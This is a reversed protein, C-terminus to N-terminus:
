RPHTHTLCALSRPPQSPSRSFPTASFAISQSTAALLAHKPTLTPQLRAFEEWAFPVLARSVQPSLMLSAALVLGTMCESSRLASAAAHAAVAGSSCATDYSACPGQTGLIFSLRGAAISITGGTAAYVSEEHVRLAQFDANMIGLFIGVDAARLDERREDVAHLAAYGYELLLRQQPDTAGSEAASMGFFASAFAEAHAVFAGYRGSSPSDPSVMWRRLPVQGVADGASPLLAFRASSGGPWRASFGAIQQQQQQQQLPATSVISSVTPAGHLRAHIYAALECVNPQEFIITENLELGLRRNLNLALKQADLSDIGLDMFGTRRREADDWEGAGTSSLPGIADIVIAECEAISTPPLATGHPGAEGCSAAGSAAGGAAGGARRAVHPQRWEAAAAAGVGHSTATQLRPSSRLDYSVIVGYGLNQVDGRRYGAVVDCVLAGAMTHFLLGPDSGEDVHARYAAEAEASGPVVDARSQDYNRCRTVGCALQVTPDLEGLHLMTRRILDGVRKAEPRQLVALLQVVPGTPTHLELERERTTSLLCDYSPVRQSYMVGLLRGDPAVGVLQGTPHHEIRSRLTAADSALADNHWFAELELLGPLDHLTALRISVGAPLETAQQWPKDGTTASVLQLAKSVLDPQVSVSRSAAISPEPPFRRQSSQPEDDSGGGGGRLRSITRM